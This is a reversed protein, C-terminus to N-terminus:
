EGDGGGPEADRSASGGRVVMGAATACFKINHVRQRAVGAREAIEQYTLTTNQLLGLIFYTSPSIDQHARPSVKVNWESCAQRVVGRSVGWHLAAATISCENETVYEAYKRRTLTPKNPPVIRSDRCIALITGLTVGFEAAAESATTRRLRMRDAIVNFYAAKDM